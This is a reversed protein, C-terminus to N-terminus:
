RYFVDSGVGDSLRRGAVAALNVQNYTPAGIGNRLRMAAAQQIPTASPPRGAGQPSMSGGGYVNRGRAAIGVSSRPDNNM